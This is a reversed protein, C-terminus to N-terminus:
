KRAIPKLLNALKVPYNTAKHLNISFRPVEHSQSASADVVCATKYALRVDKSDLGAILSPWPLTPIQCYLIYM